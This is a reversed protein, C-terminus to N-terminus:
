HKYNIAQNATTIITMVGSIVLNLYYTIGRWVLIAGTTAGAPFLTSFVMFFGGEAVGASGPSPILSISMYLISQLAIIEVFGKGSQGFARYVFFTIGFYATLQVITMLTLKIVITRNILLLQISKAFEDVETLWHNRMRVVKDQPVKFRQMLKTVSYIVIKIRRPSFVALLLLTLGITNFLIGLAILGKSAYLYGLMTQWNLLFLVLSYITVGIQFYLFKNVLVATAHSARIGDQVMMMLQMPQGGSAFPTVMSYFQGIFMSKIAHWPSSIKQRVNVLEHLMAAELALYIAMSVIAFFTFKLSITQLTLLIKNADQGHFLLYFTVAILVPLLLWNLWKKM